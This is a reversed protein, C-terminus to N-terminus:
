LGLRLHHNPTLAALPQAIIAYRVADVFLAVLVAPEHLMGAARVLNAVNAEESRVDVVELRAGQTDELVVHEGIRGIRKCRLWVTATLPALPHKEQQRFVSLPGEFTPAALGYATGLHVPTLPVAQESGKEWRIRRTMFGPYVVADAVALPQSFSPQGPIRDMGKFPRYTIATYVAGANLDLLYSTEIREQRTVDDTHEYALELLQLNSRAYRRERLEGLQWARGFVDELVADAEAQSEDGALKGDLYHCGKQVIAWLQGILDAGLVMREEDDLENTRGLLVLYRLMRQVGPLYTDSMQRAQRDVRQLRSAEAWQGGAVLDLLLKELLDLGERQTAAKKALAAKNVKRPAAPEEAKKQARQFQKERKTVLEAPPERVAFQDPSALYVLM